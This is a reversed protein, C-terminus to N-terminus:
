QTKTFPASVWGTHGKADKVEVWAGNKRGTARVSVGQPLTRLVAAKTSPASRMHVTATTAVMAGHWQAHAPAAAFLAVSTALSWAITSKM